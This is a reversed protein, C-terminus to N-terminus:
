SEPPDASADHAYGAHVDADLRHADALKALLTAFQAREAEDLPAVVDATQREAAARLERMAARGDDTLQVRYNRRDDPRRERVVLGARELADVLVVVRSPVAGVRDALERQSLGPSRAILRLVGAAAPTLGLPRVLEAFRSTSYTGLQSLLFGTRPPPESRSPTV